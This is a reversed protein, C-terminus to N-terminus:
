FRMDIQVGASEPGVVPITTVQNARWDADNKLILSGIGYGLASGAVMDSVWHHHGQINSVALVGAIWYPVPSNDYIGSYVRAVSVYETFHYSPMARGSRGPSLFSDQWNFFDFPDTTYANPDGSPNELDPYPRKRGFVTKLVLGATLYSYAFAKASLLGARQAREDGAIAGYAYTGAVGTLLWVDESVVGAQPWSIPADPLAFNRFAPEIQQQWFETLPKDLLILVGIGAAIRGFDKPHDIPYRVLGRIDAPVTGFSERWLSGTQSFPIGDARAPPAAQTLGAALLASLILRRM